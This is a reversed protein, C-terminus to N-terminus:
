CNAPGFGEQMLWWNPGRELFLRNRSLISFFVGFLDQQSGTPEPMDKAGRLRPGGEGAQAVLKHAEMAKLGKAVATM